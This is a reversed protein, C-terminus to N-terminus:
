METLDDNFHLFITPLIQQDEPLQLAIAKPLDEILGNLELTDCMDLMRGEINKWTYSRAHGNYILYRECIENLTEEIPVVLKTEEFTFANIIKIPVERKTMQGVKLTEDEWWPKTQDERRSNLSLDEGHLISPAPKKEIKLYVHSRLPQKTISDFLHTIDTGAFRLLQLVCNKGSNQEVLETLDFVSSFLSVWLSRCNSHWAVDEATFYQSSPKAFIQNFAM